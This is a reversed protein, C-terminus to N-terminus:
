ADTPEAPGAPVRRPPGVLRPAGSTSSADVEVGVDPDLVEDAAETATSTVSRQQLALAPPVPRSFTIPTAGTPPPQAEALSLAEVVAALADPHPRLAVLIRGRLEIWNPDTQVNLVQVTTSGEPKLEGTVMGLLKLGERMERIAGLAVNVKGTQEAQDLIRETRGVLDSVSDLLTHVRKSQHLTAIAPSLHNRQHRTLANRTLGYRRAVGSLSRGTVLEAEISDREAHNCTACAQAM